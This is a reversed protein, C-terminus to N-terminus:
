DQSAIPGLGDYKLQQVSVQGHDEWTRLMRKNSLMFRREVISQGTRQLSDDFPWSLALCVITSQDDWAPPRSFDLSQARVQVRAPWIVSINTVDFKLSLCRIGARWRYLQDLCPTDDDNSSVLSASLTIDKEYVLNDPQTALTITSGVWTRSVPSEETYVTPPQQFQIFYM